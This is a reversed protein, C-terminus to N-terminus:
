VAAPCASSSPRHWIPAACEFRQSWLLAPWSPQRTWTMACVRSPINPWGHAQSLNMRGRVRAFADHEGGAEISALRVAQLVQYSQGHAADGRGPRPSAGHPPPWWCARCGRLLSHKRSQRPTPRVALDCGFTALTMLVGLGPIWRRQWLAIATVLSATLVGSATSAGAASLGPRLVHPLNGGDGRDM